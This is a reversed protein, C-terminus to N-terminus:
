CATPALGARRDKAMLSAWYQELLAHREAPDIGTDRRRLAGHALANRYHQAFPWDYRCVEPYQDIAFDRFWGRALSTCIRRLAHQFAYGEACDIGLDMAPILVRELALAYCEERVLRIRAEHTLRQFGRLPVYALKQDDKLGVYLPTDGYCTAQHLEDHGHVRLWPYKFDRFFDENSVRMTWGKPEADMRALTQTRLAQYASREEQSGEPMGVRALLRHYADIRPHWNGPEYITARLIYLLSALSAVRGRGVSPAHLVPGDRNACVFEARSDGADLLRARAVWEGIRLVGWGPADADASWADRLGRSDALESEEVWVEPANRLNALDPVHWALAHEGVLLM